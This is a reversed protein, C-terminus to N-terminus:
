SVFHQGEYAKHSIHYLLCYPCEYYRLGGRGEDAIENIKVLVAKESPYPIKNLCQRKVAVYDENTVLKKRRKRMVRAALLKRRYGM